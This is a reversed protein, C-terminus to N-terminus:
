DRRRRSASMVGAAGVAAAMAVGIALLGTTRNSEGADATTETAAATTSTIPAATASTTAVTTIADSTTATVGDTTAAAAPAVTAPAATATPPAPAIPARSLIPRTGSPLDGNDIARQVESATVYSSGNATIAIAEGQPEVPSPALCPAGFLAAGLPTGPPRAFALVSQYTRLLVFSGDPAVDGGTVLTGPLGPLSFDAEIQITGLDEATIPAGGAADWATSGIALVRSAGLLSKTVIVLDGTAPDVLLTEADAPGGPYTISLSVAGTLSGLAGNPAADPEDVRIIRLDARAEGNDGIDAIYIASGGGPEDGDAPGVAIDEWDIAMAGEVTYAGLDAGDAGVAYLVPGSGSDNHVWLVGDHRHSAAIGSVEILPAAAISGIDGVPGFRACLDSPDEAGVNPAAVAVSLAISSVWLFLVEGIGM